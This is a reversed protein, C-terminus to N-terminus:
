WAALPNVHHHNQYVADLRRNASVWHRLVFTKLLHTRGTIVYPASVHVSFISRIWLNLTLPTVISRAINPTERRSLIRMSSIRLLALTVSMMLPYALQLQLPRNMDTTPGIAPLRLTPRGGARQVSSRLFTPLPQMRSIEGFATQMQVNNRLLGRHM